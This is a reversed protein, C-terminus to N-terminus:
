PLREMEGLRMQRTQIVHVVASVAFLAFVLTAWGLEPIMETPVVELWLGAMVVSGVATLGLYYVAWPVSDGPVIDLYVDLEAAEDTLEITRDDFEIM